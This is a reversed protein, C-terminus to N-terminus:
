RLIKCDVNKHLFLHIIDKLYILCSRMLIKGSNIIWANNIINQINVIQSWLVVSDQKDINILKLKFLAYPYEENNM